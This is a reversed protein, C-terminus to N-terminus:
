VDVEDSFNMLYKFAPVVHITKGDIKKTEEVDRSVVWGEDMKFKRMFALLGKFDAKGYKVEVPLPAKEGAVVDVENKYSDRWFFEAKLQNVLLWEFVKARSLDDDKFLLDVSVVTPYYKKLKREVKRRNRAFNYLKRVLFSDELYRLYAAVTQRSIKLDGAMASMEIMQGPEEMIINLLSELTSVDRVKYLRPIDRYVIKEVLSEKVYKRIVEKDEVEALEPFGLTRTFRALLGALEKEYVGVPHWPAGIFSLFEKFTLPDVKFEFLRGALTERSGHRMFLSESGSVVIKARNKYTDYFGKLQDAWGGLKQMEDFLFLFGGHRVDTGMLEEYAKIVDRVEIARFEDFSFYVIHDAGRGERISDEAIKMMITTKGVRRLGTLAIIQPLPIFKRIKGYIEREKYEAAYRDKEKWWPNAEVLIDTIKAM